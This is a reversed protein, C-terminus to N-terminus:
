PQDGAAPVLKARRKPKLGALGDPLFLIMALIITGLVLQWTNPAYQYALTRIFELVLAAIFPTFLNGTGALVAIVVFEGSTAWFAMEPDVHAVIIGSMAGALAALLAALVYAIHISRAASAGLYEIRIENDRIGPLLRGVSTKNFLHVGILSAAAISTLLMLGNLRSAGSLSLGFFTVDRINFGDTGGLDVSKVLLGYLLMSLALTLMAFFISRYRALLFGVVTAAVAAAVVPVILLLAAEHINWFNVMLGVAYGGIAFYLGQGFSVLGGRMLLVLGLVALGKALGVSIVFTWSPALWGVSITLLAYAIVLPLFAQHRNNM